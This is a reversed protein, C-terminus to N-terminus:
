WSRRWRGGLFHVEGTEPLVAGAVALSWALISFITFGPLYSGLVDTTAGVAVPSIFAFISGISMITGFMLAVSRADAGPLEMPITLLIPIYFWCAFGLVLVALYVLGTSALLFSGFGALGALVGPVIILARRHRVRLALLSATFLSMTGVISLLGILSGARALAMGHVEHYYTPLWAIAATLLAYPGADAIALLMTPKSSIISLTSKASRQESPSTHNPQASGWKLWCLAGILSLSGLITLGIKWGVAESVPVIAFSSLSTGLNLFGIFFGNFLPLEKPRFWQIALSGMAPFMIAASIGYLVRLLVLFPYHVAFLTLLPASGLLSAFFVLTKLHVRGVLMSGPIALLLHTFPILSVLLSATSRNISYEDMILPTLPTVSFMSLGSSFSLLAALGAIVFRYSSAKQSDTSSLNSALNIDFETNIRQWRM